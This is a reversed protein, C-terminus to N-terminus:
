HGRDAEKGTADKSKKPWLNLFLFVFWLMMWAAHGLWTGVRPWPVVFAGCQLLVSLGAVHEAIVRSSRKM